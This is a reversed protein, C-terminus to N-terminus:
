PPAALRQGKLLHQLQREARRRCWGILASCAHLIHLPQLYRLDTGYQWGAGPIEDPWRVRDLRERLDTLTQDPIRISFPTPEM